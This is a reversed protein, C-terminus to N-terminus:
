FERGPTLPVQPEEEDGEKQQERPPKDVNKAELGMGKGGSPAAFLSKEDEPEGSRM